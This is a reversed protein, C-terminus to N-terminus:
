REVIGALHVTKEVEHHRIHLTFRQARPEGALALQRHGLGHPQQTVHHIGQGVRVLLADHVAVTSGSADFSKATGTPVFNHSSGGGARAIAISTGATANGQSSAVRFAYDDVKIVYYAADDTLGTVSAGSGNHYVVGDGTNFTHAAALAIADGASAIARM